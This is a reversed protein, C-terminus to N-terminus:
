ERLGKDQKAAVANADVEEVGFSVLTSKSTYGKWSWTLFKGLEKEYVERVLGSVEKSYWRRRMEKIPIKAVKLDIFTKTVVEFYRCAEFRGADTVVAEDDLRRVDISIPMAFNGDETMLKTELIRREGKENAIDLSRLRGVDDVYLVGVVNPDNTFRKEIM